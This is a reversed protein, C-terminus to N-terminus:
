KFSADDFDDAISWPDRHDGDVMAKEVQRIRRKLHTKDRWLKRARLIVIVGLVVLVLRTNITFFLLATDLSLTESNFNIIM